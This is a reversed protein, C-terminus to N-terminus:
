KSEDLVKSDYMVRFKGNLKPSISYSALKGDKWDIDVTYGGRTRLGTVSGTHWDEPLAGLLDIHRYGDHVVHSQLLMEAIGATVGFNGDIQFPPHLDFLNRAMSKKFLLQISEHAKAPEKMRAYINIMWARSWGTHGGGHSLRYDLSKRMADIIKPENYQNIQYGPFFGYLHSMHRHGPESEAFPLRWELLRGDEGIVPKRLRPLAESAKATLENEIGLISATELMNTLAEWVIMQDFTNGTSIAAPRKKGDKDEFLYRNEPSSSPGSILDGNEDEELWELCFRANESILPWAKRLFDEDENYRYHEMLHSVGWSGNMMNGGWLTRPSMLAACVWADVAHGTCFGNVGLAKAMKQGAPLLKQMYELMPEHCEALGTVEAPWYNMQLNINLHFDAQWPAELYPNWVGQLNAPLSGPRSSSILMYRGYQFLLEELGLDVSGEKVRNLREPTSLSAVEELTSGLRLQCRGMLSSIDNAAKTEISKWSKGSLKWLQHAIKKEWGDPLPKQPDNMDYDTAALVLLTAAKAGKLRLQGNGPSLEGDHEIVRLCGTFRTGTPITGKEARAQGRIYLDENELTVVADSVRDLNFCVNLGGPVTSELRVVICDDPYSAIVTQTIKGNELEIFSSAKGTNLDLCRRTSIVKGPDRHDINLYGLLQYGNASVGTMLKDRFMEDAEIFKGERCLQRIKQVADASGDPIKYLQEKYWITDENLLIQENPYDGFPMAGLRGSGVPYAHDWKKAPEKDWLTLRSMSDLGCPDAGRSNAAEGCGILVAITLVVLGCQLLKFLMRGTM